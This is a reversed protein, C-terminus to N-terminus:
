SQWNHEWLPHISIGISTVYFWDNATTVAFKLAARENDFEVVDRFYIKGPTSSLAIDPLTKVRVNDLGYLTLKLNGSGIARVRVADVQCVDGSSDATVYGPLYHSPITNGFDNLSSSNYVYVGGDKSGYKFKTRKTSYDVEVWHTSPDKPMEWPIWQIKDYELGDSFDCILLHSPETAADLPVAIYIRKVVPDVSISLKHFYLPNIRNWYDEIVYSLEAGSGFTGVFKHLGTRNCVFVQDYMQGKSDLIGSCGHVSCGQSGDIQPANWTSPSAGNDQTAYARFDKFAYLMNHFEVMHRLGEGADGPDFNIFGDLDSISEPYGPESARATADNTWEGGVVLRAGYSTICSGAPITALQNMLREASSILDSDYFNVDNLVTTVNDGIRGSPLFYWDKDKPNGDYDKIIKTVLIWRAVISSDGGTPIGSIDAKKGGPAEYTKVEAGTLGFKTIHGSSTEFAVSFLHTGKQIVGATSSDVVELTYGSPGTGAAARAAGSGDYVYVVENNLGKQGNHPSIYVREFMTVASFDVMTAINLVPVLMATSSDWIKGTDDLLLLRSAENRKKFEYSRVVKGNWNGTAQLSSDFGGRTKVGSETIEVNLLDIAYEPPIADSTGRAMLGRFQRISQFSLDGVAM